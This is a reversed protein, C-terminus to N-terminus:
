SFYRMEFVKYFLKKSAQRKALNPLRQDCDLDPLRQDCDEVTYTQCDKIVTKWLTLKATKPDCDLNAPREDCEKM